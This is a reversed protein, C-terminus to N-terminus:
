SKGLETAIMSNADNVWRRFAENELEYRKGTTAHQWLHHIEHALATEWVESHRVIRIRNAEYDLVEGLASPTGDPPSKAKGPLADVWEITGGWQMGPCLDHLVGLAKEVEPPPTGVHTWTRPTRRRAFWPLLALLGLALVPFAVPLIISLTDM